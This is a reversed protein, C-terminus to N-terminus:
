EDAQLNNQRSKTSISLLTIGLWNSCDMRDHKKPLKMILRKCTCWDKPLVELDWIKTFLVHLQDTAIKPDAKFLESELSDIVPAENNRLTNIVKKIEEKTSLELETHFLRLKNGITLFDQFM